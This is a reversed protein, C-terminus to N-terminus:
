CLHSPCSTTSVITSRNAHSDSNYTTTIQPNTRIDLPVYKIWAKKTLLYVILVKNTEGLSSIDRYCFQFTSLLGQLMVSSSISQGIEHLVLYISIANKNFGTRLVLIKKHATITILSIAQPANLKSRYLTWWVLSLYRYLVAQVDAIPGLLWRWDRSKTSFFFDSFFVFLFIIDWACSVWFKPNKNPFIRPRQTHRHGKWTPNRGEGAQESLM